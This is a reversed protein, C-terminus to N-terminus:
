IGDGDGDGDGDGRRWTQPQAPQAAAPGGAGTGAAPPGGAQRRGGRLKAADVAGQKDATLTLALSLTLASSPNPNPNPNPNFNPDPNPGPSPSPSPNVQKEAARASAVYQLAPPPRTPAEIDTSTNTRQRAAEISGRKPRKVAAATSEPERETAVPSVTAAAPPARAAPASVLARVARVTSEKKGGM